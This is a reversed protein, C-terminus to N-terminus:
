EGMDNKILLKRFDHINIGFQIYETEEPILKTQFDNVSWGFCACFKTITLQSIEM